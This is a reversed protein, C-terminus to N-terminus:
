LQYLKIDAKARQIEKEKNKLKHHLTTIENSFKPPCRNEDILTKVQEFQEQYIKM